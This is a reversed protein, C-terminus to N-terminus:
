RRGQSTRERETPQRDKFCVNGGGHQGKLNTLHWNPRIYMASPYGPIRVWGEWQTYSVINRNCKCGIGVPTNRTCQENFGVAQAQSGNCVAIVAILIWAARHM